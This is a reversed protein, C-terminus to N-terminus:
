TEFNDKQQNLAIMDIDLIIVIAGKQKLYNATSLGLGKVGGTVITIANKIEM